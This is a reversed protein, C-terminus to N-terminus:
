RRRSRMWIFVLLVIGVFILSGTIIGIIVGGSLGRGTTRKSVPSPSPSPSLSTQVLPMPSDSVAQPPQALPSISPSETPVEQLIEETSNRFRAEFKGFFDAMHHTQVFIAPFGKAGCNLDHIFTVVGVLVPNFFGSRGIQFQVVPAGEDGNCLGCDRDLYGICGQTEFDISFTELGAFQTRVQEEIYNSCTREDVLPLDVQRLEINREDNSLYGFGYVRVYSSTSPISSNTNVRLFRTTKIPRELELIAVNYNFYNVDNIERLRKFEDPVHTTKVNINIETYSDDLMYIREANECLASTVVITPRLLAGSCYGQAGRSVRVFYLFDPDVLSTEDGNVIRNPTLQDFAIRQEAPENQLHVPCTSSRYITNIKAAIVFNFLFLLIVLWQFALHKVKM